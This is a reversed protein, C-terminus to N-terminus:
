RTASGPCSAHTITGLYQWNGDAGGKFAAANGAPLDFLLIEPQGDGDLDALVAECKAAAVLCRPLLWQRQFANWDQRIFGDPLAAGNPQIVTINGARQEPGTRATRIDAPYREKLAANARDAITKAEPGEPEAALRQLADMGYRGARFRLFTFDFQAPSTLGTELRRVQDAVSIRDLDAVPSRLALLMVVIALSTLVNTTELGRLSVGSRAAAVVYGIGYCAAAVVCAAAGVREPTLGHQKIRLWVAYAALTVLVLLVAAALVSAYRLVAAARHEPRGDQYAANILFVLAAAATLLIGAARRTGWLPELGTFLLAVIFAAGIVAMLPLLWSLLILTLTRAGQVLNVRVDTVHLASSFALATVPIWFVRRRILEALFEIKILRFLEAGLFLLAWFVGVFVVALVFQVGQKWSVDFHTPYSARLRGDAEASVILTHVIFLIAALSLWLVWSPSIREISGNAPFVLQFSNGSLIPDRYIDYIALGACLIVAVAAWVFLTRPRLNGLGSILLPPIFVAVTLLPAFLFPETAPWTKQEAAEWLALLALGQLLGVGVRASPLMLKDSAMWNGEPVLAL